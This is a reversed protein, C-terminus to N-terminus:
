DPLENGHYPCFRFAGSLEEGDVPCRKPPLLAGLPLRWRFAREGLMVRLEGPERPAALREGDAGESPFVLPRFSEGAKGAGSALAPLMSNLLIRLDTPVEKEPLPAYRKADPGIVRFRERTRAAERFTVNGLPSIDAEAVFFVLYDEFLDLYQRRSIADVDGRIMAAWIDVPLWWVIELSSEDQYQQQTERTLSALDPAARPAGVPGALLVAMSSAILIRRAPAM